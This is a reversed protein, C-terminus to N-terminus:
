ANEAKELFPRWEDWLAWSQRSSGDSFTAEYHIEMTRAGYSHGANRNRERVTVLVERVSIIHPEAPIAEAGIM